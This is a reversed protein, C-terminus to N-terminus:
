SWALRVGSTTTATTLVFTSVTSHIAVSTPDTNHIRIGTDGTVGKLTISNTNAAPPIITCATAGSPVTITNSGLALTKLENQAPSTSNDAATFSNNANLGDGLFQMNVQRQSEVSM